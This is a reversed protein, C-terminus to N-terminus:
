GAPVDVWGGGAARSALAAEVFALGAVGDAATPFDLALPDAPRGTLRAAIAEAADRYLNAFAEFYGEPHGRAIRTLRASAPLLDADGRALTQVAKGQLAFKLHNPREHTWELHGTEGFVRVTIQNETGALAQSCFLTGHVDGEFRLLMCAYDDVSRGPVVAGLDAALRRVARGAVFAALHHAHTGIDGLVLSPGSQRTDLKWRLKPTLEGQEVPRSMGAQLYEVQIARLAGIAGAAVMARAQRIMPYAAYVHTLCLVLRREEALAALTRAEALTNTLPKDCIVHLGAQLVARCEAFHRDNPTMVAVADLKAGALMAELSAFGALGLAEAAERAREPASSLVGAVLEFRGDLTAALRHVPGIMSGPGGGVLGLRLKRGLSSFAESM